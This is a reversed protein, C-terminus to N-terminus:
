PCDSRRRPAIAANEGHTCGVAVVARGAQTVGSRRRRRHDEDQQPARAEDAGLEAQGIDLREGEQRHPHDEHHEDQGGDRKGHARAPRAAGLDAVAHRRARHHVPKIEAADEDRDALAHWGADRCQDGPQLRQEGRGDGVTEHPLPHRPQLPGPEDEAQDAYQQHQVVAADATGARQSPQLALRTESSPM